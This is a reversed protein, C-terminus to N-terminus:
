APPRAVVQRELREAGRRDREADPMALPQQRHHGAEVARHARPSGDYATRSASTARSIPRSGRDSPRLLAEERALGAQLHRAIALADLLQPAHRWRGHVPGALEAEVGALALM